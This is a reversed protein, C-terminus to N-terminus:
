CKGERQQSSACTYGSAPNDHWGEECATTGGQCYGGGTFTCSNPVPEICMAYALTAVSVFAILAPVWHWPLKRM